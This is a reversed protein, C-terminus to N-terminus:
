VGVSPGILINLVVAITVVIGLGAALMVLLAKMVSGLQHAQDIFNGTIWLGWIMTVVVLLAGLFPLTFMLVLVVIQLGARMLQLWTLAVLVDRITGTGGLGRGAWFIAVVSMALAVILLGFYGLPSISILLPADTPGPTLMDSIGFVLANIAAVALLATWADRLSLKMSLIKQAAGSPSTITEIVLEKFNPIM